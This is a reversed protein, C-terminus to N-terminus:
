KLPDSNGLEYLVLAPFVIAATEMRLINAGLSVTHSGEAKLHDIERDSFGGEPGVFLAISPPTKQDGMGSKVHALSAQMGGQQEGVWAALILDNANAATQIANEFSGAPALEPLRARGSQEAAERIIAEWRTIRKDNMEPTQVLSRESIFPHFTHVGVETAKQLIWEVKDRKSLPFFLHLLASPESRVEGIEIVRGITEQETVVTLRVQFARGEGDMVVVVDDPKLRLVNRIQHAIDGPFRVIEPAQGVQKIFFRHSGM